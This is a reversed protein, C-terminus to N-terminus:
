EASLLFTCPQEAALSRAVLSVLQASESGMAAIEFLVAEEGLWLLASKVDSAKADLTPFQNSSKWDLTERNFGPISLHHKHYRAWEKFADFCKDLRLLIDGGGYFKVTDNTAM